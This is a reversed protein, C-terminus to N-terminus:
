KRKGLLIIGVGIKSYFGSFSSPFYGPQIGVEARLRYGLGVSKGQVFYKYGIAGGILRKKFLDKFGLSRIEYNSDYGSGWPNNNPTFHGYSVDTQYSDSNVLISIDGYIGQTQYKAARFQYGEVNTDFRTAIKQQFIAGIKLAGNFTRFVQQGEYRDITHVWSHQKSLFTEIGASQFSGMVYDYGGRLSFEIDVNVPLVAYYRTKGSKGLDIRYESIRRTQRLMPYAYIFRYEMPIRNAGFRAFGKETEFGEALYYVHAEIDGYKRTSSFFELGLPIRNEVATIQPNFMLFPSSIAYSFYGDPAEKFSETILQGSIPDKKSPALINSKTYVGCGVFLFLSLLALPFTIKIVM